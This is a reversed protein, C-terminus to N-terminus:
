RSFFASVTETISEGQAETSESEEEVTLDADSHLGEDLYPALADVLETPEVVGRSQNYEIIDHDDLKPLHSQYLAIYVRQREDSVLQQVTTDHEWAAVEEALDRMVFREEEDHAALYRLVARRRSNQLIHFADDKEISTNADAETSSSSDGDDAPRETQVSM